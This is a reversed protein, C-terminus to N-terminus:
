IDRIGVHMHEEFFEEVVERVIHFQLHNAPLPDISGIAYDEHIRPPPCMMARAMVARNQVEHHHFGPLTFPKPDARQFVMSLALESSQSSQPPPLPVSPVV